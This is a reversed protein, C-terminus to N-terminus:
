KKELREKKFWQERTTPLGTARAISEEMVEFELSKVRVRGGEFTKMFELVVAMDFGDFNQLFLLFGSEQLLALSNRYDVIQKIEQLSM